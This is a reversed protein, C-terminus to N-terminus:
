VGTINSLGDKIFESIWTLIDPESMPVDDGLVKRVERTDFVFEEKNYIHTYVLDIAAYSDEDTHSCSMVLSVITQPMNGLPARDIHSHKLTANLHTGVNKESVITLDGECRQCAAKMLPIGLGVKRSTRTTVFPDFVKELLEKDMGHGNDKIEITLKDGVLDEDVIIELLSAGASISNQALDLIHLSLEKM